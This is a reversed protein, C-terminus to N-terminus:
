LTLHYYNPRKIGFDKSYLLIKEQFNEILLSFDASDIADFRLLTGAIFSEYAIITKEQEQKHCNCNM